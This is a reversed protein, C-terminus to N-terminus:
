RAPAARLPLGSRRSLVPLGQRLLALWSFRWPKFARALQFQAAPEAGIWVQGTAPLTWSDGAQLWVDDLQGPRTLWLRGHSVRVVCGAVLKLSVPQPTALEFHEIQHM